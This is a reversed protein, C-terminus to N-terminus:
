SGFLCPNGNHCLNRPNGCCRSLIIHIIFYIDIHRFSFTIHYVRKGKNDWIALNMPDVYSGGPASLVWTPGTNAGHVKSEPTSQPTTLLVLLVLVGTVPGEVFVASHLTTTSFSTVLPRSNFSWCFWTLIQMATDPMDHHSQSMPLSKAHSARQLLFTSSKLHYM